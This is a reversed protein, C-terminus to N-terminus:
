ESISQDGDDSAIYMCNAAQRIIIADATIYRLFRSPVVDKEHDTMVKVGIAIATAPTPGHSVQDPSITEHSSPIEITVKVKKAIHNANCDFLPM